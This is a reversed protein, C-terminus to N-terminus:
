SHTARHSSSFREVAFDRWRPVRTRLWYETTFGPWLAVNRGTETRYWSVCAGRNWVKSALREQLRANHARQAAPIVDLWKVRERAVRQVLQTVYHAQAEIMFVMSNHGLGSNPGLLTYFNPFGSYAVGFYAEAGERWSASLERGGVGHVPGPLLGKAIEFGTGFVIADVERLVGDDGVLGRETVERVGGTVLEVNDRQLTPYWDNSFLIRKCGMRFHPRLRARLAEDPVSAELHKLALPETWEMIRPSVVFGAGRAELRTYLANRYWRALRPHSAFRAKARESFPADTKELIWPATRQVVYLKKTRPAIEPVYQIASAGSGISAVVKNTFDFDHNWRASHFTTGRFRELGPLTPISPKSLPGAGAIVVRAEFREGARSALTWTGSTEDLTASVIETAFRVHPLLGLARACTRLYAQIEPQLAYDRSWDSKPAFSFSYVHSPIDCACGPYTNDRWTGGVENASEFVTFSNIGARLLAAGMAIGSFGAGIVAIPLMQGCSWVRGEGSPSVVTERM